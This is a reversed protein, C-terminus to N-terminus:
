FCMECINSNALHTAKPKIGLPIDHFHLLLWTCLPFHISTVGVFLVASVNPLYKAIASNTHIEREKMSSIINIRLGSLVWTKCM